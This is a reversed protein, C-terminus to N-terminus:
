TEQHGSATTRKNLLSRNRKREDQKQGDCGDISIGPFLLMRNQRDKKQEYFVSTTTGHIGDKM